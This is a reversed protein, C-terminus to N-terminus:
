CTCHVGEQMLIMKFVTGNFVKGTNINKINGTTVNIILEDQEKVMALINPCEVM